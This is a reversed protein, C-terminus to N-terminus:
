QFIIVGYTILGGVTTLILTNDIEFMNAGTFYIRLGMVNDVFMKYTSLVRPNDTLTLLKESADMLLFQLNEYEYIVKVASFTLSFFLIIAMMLATLMQIFMTFDIQITESFVMSVTNFFCIIAAAYLLLCSCSLANDIDKFLTFLNRYTSMYSIIISKSLLKTSTESKFHCNFAKLMNASFTYSNTCILLALFIAGDCVASSFACSLRVLFVIAPSKYIAIQFSLVTIYSRNVAKIQMSYLILFASIFIIWIIILCVYIKVLKLQKHMEVDLKKFLYCINNGVNFIQKQKLMMTLRILFGLTLYANFTLNTRQSFDFIQIGLVSIVCSVVVSVFISCDWFSSFCFRRKNCAKTFTIGLWSSLTFITLLIKSANDEKFGSRLGKNQMKLFNKSYKVFLFIEPNTDCVSRTKTEQKYKINNNEM